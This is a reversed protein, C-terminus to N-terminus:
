VLLITPLTLHTYSVTIINFVNQDFTEVLKKLPLTHEFVSFKGDIWNINEATILKKVSNVHDESLIKRCFYNPTM